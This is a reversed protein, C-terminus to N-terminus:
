AQLCLTVVVTNTINTINRTNGCDDAVQWVVEFENLIGSSAPPPTAVM